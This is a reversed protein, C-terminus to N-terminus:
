VDWRSPNIGPASTAMNDPRNPINFDFNRTNLSKFLPRVHAPLLAIKDPPWDPVEAIPSAWAPRYAIALLRRDETSVNPYNGHWVAQNIIAATGAKCTIM